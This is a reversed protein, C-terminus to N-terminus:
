TTVSQKKKWRSFSFHGFLCKWGKKRNKERTFVPIWLNERAFQWIKERTSNQKERTSIESTKKFKWSPFNINKDRTLNKKERTWNQKKKWPCLKVKKPLEWASFQINERLSKIKRQFFFVSLWCNFTSPFCFLNNINTFISWIEALNKM